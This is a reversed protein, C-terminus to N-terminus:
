QVKDQIDGEIADLSATPLPKIDQIGLIQRKKSELREIEVEIEEIRVQQEQPQHFINIDSRLKEIEQRMEREYKRVDEARALLQMLEDKTQRAITEKARMENKLEDCQKIYFTAREENFMVQCKFQVIDNKAQELILQREELMKAKELKFRQTNEDTDDGSKRATAAAVAAGAGTLAAEYKGQYALYTSFTGLLIAILLSPSRLQRLM